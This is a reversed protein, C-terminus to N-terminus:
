SQNYVITEIASSPAAIPDRTAPGRESLYPLFSIVIKASTSKVIPAKIMAKAGVMRTRTIPLSMTPTLRLRRYKSINDKM